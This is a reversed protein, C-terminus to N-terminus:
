AMRRFTAVSGIRRLRPVASSGASRLAVQHALDYEVGLGGAEIGGLTMPQDLDAADFEDVAKGGALAEVAIEIGLTVHRRLGERDM